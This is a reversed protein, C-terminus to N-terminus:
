ENLKLMQDIEEQMLNTKQKLEKRLDNKVMEEAAAMDYKMAMVIYTLNKDTRKFLLVPETRGLKAMVTNQYAGIVETISAADAKSEANAVDSKIRGLINSGIQSAIDALCLQQAQQKAAAFTEAKAEQQAVYYKPTGKEDVVYSLIMTNEIQKEMPLGGPLNMYGQKAYKKAQKRADKVASKKALKQADKREDKTQAQLLTATGFLLLLLLSLRKLTNM